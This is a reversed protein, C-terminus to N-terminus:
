RRSSPTRPATWSWPVTLASRPYELPAQWTGPAPHVAMGSAKNILILHEDEFLVDLPIDEPEPVAPVPDPLLVTYEVGPIAPTKPDDQVIDDGGRRQRVHGEKILTKARSRSLAEFQESLFRDLRTGKDDEGALASLETMLATYVSSLAFTM